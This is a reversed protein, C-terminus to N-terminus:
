IALSSLEMYTDLVCVPWCVVVYSHQAEVMRLYIFFLQQLVHQAEVM